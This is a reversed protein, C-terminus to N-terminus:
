SYWKKKTYFSVQNYLGLVRFALLWILCLWIVYKINFWGMKQIHIDPVRWFLHVHLIVVVIFADIMEIDALASFYGIKLM